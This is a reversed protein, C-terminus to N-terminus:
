ARARGRAGAPARAAVGPARRTRADRRLPVRARRAGRDRHASCGSQGHPSRIRNTGGYSRSTLPISPRSIAWGAMDDRPPVVLSRSPPARDRRGLNRAASPIVVFRSGGARSLRRELEPPRLVRRSAHLPCSLALVDTSDAFQDVSGTWAVERLFPDVIRERLADVFRGSHIVLYPQTHFCSVTAEIPATLGLANHMEAVASYVGSLAAERGRWDSAALAAVLHPGVRDACSLRAFATGFWKTYPWYRREMLFCLRMVERAQRAAVISSGLDDGADGTRAVFPEEQDVRRWQAALLAIWVDDPYYNLTARLPELEGLGDHMVRGATTALLRQQPITLWDRATMGQHPDLGLYGTCFAEVSTVQVGHRVPGEAVRTMIANRSTPSSRILDVPLGRFEHPLDRSLLEGIAPALEAHDEARLFLQVRVGWEHDMSRATDYGLV